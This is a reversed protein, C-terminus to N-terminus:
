PPDLSELFSRVARTVRQREAYFTENHGARDLWLASKPETAAEFLRQSMEFPVVEDTRSHIILKPAEIKRLKSLNDFRTRVMWRVPLWPFSRAAMDAISTFTSLLIVGGVPRTSALECAPGGGLSEVLVVLKQAPARAVAWDYAANTDRYLGAESPTGESQGYGRYELALVNAGFDGFIELLDSRGALNGANGHLYLLTQIAGPREIYRAHLTTGDSARLRLDEGPGVVRGGRTPFFILRDQFLRILGCFALYAFGFRGAWKLTYALTVERRGTTNERPAAVTSDYRLFGWRGDDCFFVPKRNIADCETEPAIAIGENNMTEPLGTPRSYTKGVFFSGANPAMTNEQVALLTARNNCTNDCYAHLTDQDRDFELGMVGPMGRGSYAM